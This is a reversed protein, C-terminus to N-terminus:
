LRREELVELETIRWRGGLSRVVFRAQYQNVRQHIHGWHGVSGLVNWTLNSEFGAGGDTATYRGDLITVEKVKARAGGQNELELSRQTELFVDTLLEGAVSQELIDYIREEDRYDFALYVNRLLTGLVQQAEDDSVGLRITAPVSVGLLILFSVAAMLVRRPPRSRTAVVQWHRAILFVLGILSVLAVFGFVLRGRPPTTVDVLVPLTPNTLFNRWRLVNDGATLIYPLSGAEDTASSPVEPIRQGFLEWEMVAEEPLGDVPYTFIVGMTASIVDLDQPPDIVGSTRLNRYIFHARDLYGESQVGDITVPNRSRLFEVVRQKMEEQQEVRITDVGDLGLDVWEHLDKPRFVIEKRVEYPEVYLFASIPAYYQRRLNRNEFASYWPDNWDLVLRERAGLYRFENIPLGGHYTVFGVSARPADGETGPASFSVSAPRGSTPYTLRAFVVTEASDPDSPLPEGTIEDRRIRPRPELARLYGFLPRDREDRIVFDERVFQVLRDAWPEPELGLRQHLDDPLLNAFAPLDQLGVALEVVVSDEHIFIESITSALMARTVVIADSAVHSPALATALAIAFVRM